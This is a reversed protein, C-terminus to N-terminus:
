RFAPPQGTTELVSLWLRGTPDVVHREAVALRMPVHVIARHWMAVVMETKGCMGADVANIALITCLVSDPPDAPQSRIMYSPDIYKLNIEVGIEQFYERIRRALYAGIDKLVINGSADRRGSPGPVLDQGAGEAVVIVAHGKKEFRKRLAELFGNPGELKFPVEPILTFNVQNSALTASCAIFGSHRGMLKVLGIGNRVAEAERHAADIAELARSYATMYGFSRDMFRFDNDITKPVGVVAINLGRREIEECIAIAGRTTGDGGVTFLINVGFHELTDVMRAPDQPGRSTGLITGGMKHINAVREPELDVVLDRDALGRYGFRFGITRKVCYRLRASLVIDRIINNLGPCLGGCTVIGVTTEEPKFHIKRRPGAREFSPLRRGCAALSGVRHDLLIRETDETFAFSRGNPHRLAVLPSDVECPGLSKIKFEEPPEFNVNNVKREWGGPTLLL